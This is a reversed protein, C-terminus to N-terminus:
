NDYEFYDIRSGSKFDAKDLIRILKGITQDVSLISKSEKMSLFMERVDQDRVDTILESIMDTNVPGPSYNLVDLKPEEEALVKFYMERSAKGICYYGLSKVPKLGCLSTINIVLRKNVIDETFTKLFASNLCMVSFLNLSFYDTIKKVDGMDACYEKVDGLSGANHVIMSLSFSSAQKGSDNLSNQIISNLGNTVSNSLDVSYTLVSVEPNAQSILLKTKKLGDMSRALLVILSGPAFKKSLEVAIHSGIGQSAGTVICYSKLGLFSM